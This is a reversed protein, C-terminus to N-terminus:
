RVSAKRSDGTQRAHDCRPRRERGRAAVAVEEATRHGAIHARRDGLMGLPANVHHLHHGRAPERRRLGVLQAGLEGHGFEDREDLLRVPGPKRDDGVGVRQDPHLVGQRGADVPDLM